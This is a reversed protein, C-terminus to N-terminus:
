QDEIRKCQQEGYAPHAGEMLLSKTPVFILILSYFVGFIM